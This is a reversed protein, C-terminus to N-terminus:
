YFAAMETAMAECDAWFQRVEGDTLVRERSAEAGGPRALRAAPNHEILEQDVAFSFMKRVCALVRNAMTAAGREAVAEVLERVDRRKIDAIARHKWKPLVESHLIRKDERWSRKHRKAYKEIYDEILDAISEAKRAQQKEAAPDKGGRVAELADKAQERAEALGFRDSLPGLTLRRLKGRHRYMVSWSKAGHETVRLVLGRVQSDFYDVRKGATPKISEVRKATLKETPM